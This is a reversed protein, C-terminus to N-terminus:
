ALLVFIKYLNFWNSIKGSSLLIGLINVSRVLLHIGKQLILILLKRFLLVEYFPFTIPKTGTM